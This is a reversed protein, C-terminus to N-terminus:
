HHAHRNATMAYAQAEAESIVGDHNTDAAEVARNFRVNESVTHYQWYPLHITVSVNNIVANTSDPWVPHTHNLYAEYFVQAAAVSAFQINKRPENKVIARTVCGSVAAILLATTISVIFKKM